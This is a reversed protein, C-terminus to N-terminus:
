EEIEINKERCYEITKVKIMKFEEDTLYSFDYIKAFDDFSLELKFPSTKLYTVRDLNILIEKEFRKKIRIIGADPQIKINQRLLNRGILGYTISFIGILILAEGFFALDLEFSFGKKATIIIGLILITIGYVIRYIRTGKGLRERTRKEITLKLNEM